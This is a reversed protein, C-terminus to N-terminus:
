SYLIYLIYAFFFIYWSYYNEKDSVIDQSCNLFDLLNVFWVKQFIRASSANRAM